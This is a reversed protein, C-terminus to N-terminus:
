RVLGNVGCSVTMSLFWCVFEWAKISGLPENCSECSNVMLDSAWAVHIGYAM